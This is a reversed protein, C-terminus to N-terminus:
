DKCTVDYRIKIEHIESNVMYVWTGLVLFCIGLIVFCTVTSWIKPKPSWTRIFANVM